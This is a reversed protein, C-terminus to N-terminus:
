YYLMINTQNVIYGFVEQVYQIQGINKERKSKKVFTIPVFEYFPNNETYSNILEFALYLSLLLTYVYLAFLM